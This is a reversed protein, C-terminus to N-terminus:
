LEDKDETLDRFRELILNVLEKKSMCAHKLMEKIDTESIDTEDLIVRFLVGLDALIEERGGKLRVEGKKSKIM